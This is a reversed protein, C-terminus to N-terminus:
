SASRQADLIRELRDIGQALGDAIEALVDAVTAVEGVLGVGSGSPCIGEELEGEVCGLQARHRGRLAALEEPSAGGKELEILRRVIPTALGRSAHHTRCYIPSGEAGAEVVARKYDAHAECEATAVFRTGMQVGDAGLALAALVGRADGIGGAAVVPCSVADVVQPVLSLTALGGPRVHGGAESSEAIVADVGAAEAKEALAPSPVVHLVVAGGDKLEDTHRAPSGAGTIVVPVREAIVVDLLERTTDSGDPRVCILPVNVGFPRDTLVRVARIETRLEDADMTAAGLVGLGGAESVASALGFRSVWAMGGQVIPLPTGLLRTLPTPVM